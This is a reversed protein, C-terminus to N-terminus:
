FNNVDINMYNEGYVKIITELNIVNRDQWNHSVGFRMAIDLYDQRELKGKEQIIKLAQYLMGSRQIQKTNWKAKVSKLAEVERVVRIRSYLTGRSCKGEDFGLNRNKTPRLVYESDILEVESKIRPNSEDMEGNKKRYITEISASRILEMTGNSVQLTRVKNEKRDSDDNLTITNTDTDVDSKKLNAIESLEFGMAGEFLLRIILADNANALATMTIDDIDAFSILDSENETQYKVYEKQNVDFPNDSRMNKKQAFKLYISLSHCNSKVSMFTTPKLTKRVFDELEDVTFAGLDKNLKTEISKAHHFIRKFTRKSSEVKYQDLFEEKTSQNYLEKNSFVHRM